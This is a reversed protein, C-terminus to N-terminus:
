SPKKDTRLIHSGQKNVIKTKQRYRHGRFQSILGERLFGLSKVAKTNKTPSGPGEHVRVKGKKKLTRKGGGGIVHQLAGVPPMELSHWLCVGGGERVCDVM